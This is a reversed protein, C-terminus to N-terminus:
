NEVTSKIETLLIVIQPSFYPIKVAIKAISVKCQMVQGTSLMSQDIGEDLISTGSDQSVGATPGEGWLQSAM